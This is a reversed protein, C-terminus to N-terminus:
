HSDYLQHWDVSEVVYLVSEDYRLAFAFSLGRFSRFSLKKLDKDDQILCLNRIDLVLLM